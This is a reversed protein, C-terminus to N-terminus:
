FVFYFFRCPLFMLFFRVAVFYLSFFLSVTCTGFVFLTFCWSPRTGQQGAPRPQLDANLYVRPRVPEHRAVWCRYAGVASRGESLLCAPWCACVGFSHVSCVVCFLCFCLLLCLLAFSFLCFVSVLGLGSSCCVAPEVRNFSGHDCFLPSFVYFSSRCCTGPTTGPVRLRFPDAPFCFHPFFSAGRQRAASM